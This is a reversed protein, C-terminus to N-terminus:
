GEIALDRAKGVVFGRTTHMHDLTYGPWAYPDAVDPAVPISFRHPGAKDVLRALAWGTDDDIQAHISAIRELLASHERLTEAAQEHTTVRHARDNVADWHDRLEDLEDYLWKTENLVSQHLFTLYTTACRWVDETDPGPRQQEWILRQMRNAYVWAERTREDLDDPRPYGLDALGGPWWADDFIPTHPDADEPLTGANIQAVLAPDLTARWREFARELEDGALRWWTGSSEILDDVVLRLPTKPEPPIFQEDFTRKDLALPQAFAPTAVTLCTVVLLTRRLM